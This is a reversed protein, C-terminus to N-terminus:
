VRQSTRTVNLCYRIVLCPPIGQIKDGLIEIIITYGSTVQYIFRFIYDSCTYLLM